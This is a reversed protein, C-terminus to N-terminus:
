VVGLLEFVPVELCVFVSGMSRVFILSSSTGTTVAGARSGFTLILGEVDVFVRGPREARSLDGLIGAGCGVADLFSRAVAARESFLEAEGDVVLFLKPLFRTDGDTSFRLGAGTVESGFTSGSASTKFM